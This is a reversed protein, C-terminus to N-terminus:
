TWILTWYILTSTTQNFIHFSFYLQFYSPWHKRVMSHCWVCHKGTLGQLSKIKKQCKDCKRSDCNGSVWDHAPVQFTPYSNLTVYLCVFVRVSSLPYLQWISKTHCVGTEKKSKVYTKTCPAPNRNACRGHVTYKCGTHHAVCCLFLWIMNGSMLLLLLLLWIFLRGGM